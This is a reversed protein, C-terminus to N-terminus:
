VRTVLRRPKTRVPAAAESRSAPASASRGKAGDAASTTAITPTVPNSLPVTTGDVAAMIPMSAGLSTCLVIKPMLALETANPKKRPGRTPPPMAAVAPTGAARTTLATSASTRAPSSPSPARSGVRYFPSSRLHSSAVRWWRVRDIDSLLVAGGHVRRATVEDDAEDVGLDRRLGDVVEHRQRLLAVVVAQCEVPDNGSEHDLAAVREAVAGTARVVLQGVLAIGRPPRTAGRPHRRARGAHAPRLEEDGETICRKERGVAHVVM